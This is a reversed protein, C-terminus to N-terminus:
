HAGGANTSHLDLTFYALHGKPRSDLDLLVCFLFSCGLGQGEGGPPLLERGCPVGRGPVLFQPVLYM